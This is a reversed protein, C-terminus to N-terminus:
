DGRAKVGLKNRFPKAWDGVYLERIVKDSEPCNKPWYLIVESCTCAIFFARGKQDPLEFGAHFVGDGRRLATRIHKRLRHRALWRWRSNLKLINM